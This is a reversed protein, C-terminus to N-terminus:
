VDTGIDGQGEGKVESESFRKLLEWECSSYKRCIECFDWWETCLYRMVCILTLPRVFYLRSSPHVSLM